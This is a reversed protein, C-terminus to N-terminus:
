LAQRCGVAACIPGHVHGPPQDTVPAPPGPLHGTLLRAASLARRYQAPRHILSWDPVAPDSTLSGTTRRRYGYVPADCFWGTFCSTLGSLLLNDEGVPMGGWAGVAWLADTRALLTMPYAPFCSNGPLQALATAPTILGTISPRRALVEQSGDPNTQLVLGAVWAIAPDTSLAAIRLSLSHAPLVDDDDLICVWEGQARVLAANRTVAAGAPNVSGSPHVRPDDTAHAHAAYALAANATGDAQILWEFDWGAPLAQTRLSDWAASAWLTGSGSARTATVVSILPM